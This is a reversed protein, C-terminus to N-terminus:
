LVGLLVSISSFGFGGGQVISISCVFASFYVSSFVGSSCAVQWMDNFLYIERQVHCQASKWFSCHRTWYEGSKRNCHQGFAFNHEGVVGTAAQGVCCNTALQFTSFTGLLFYGDARIVAGTAALPPFPLLGSSCSRSRKHKAGAFARAHRQPRGLAMRGRVTPSTAPFVALSSCVDLPRHANPSSVVHAFALFQSQCM